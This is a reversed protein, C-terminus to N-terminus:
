RSLWWQQFHENSSSAFVAGQAHRAGGLRAVRAAVQRGYARTRHGHMRLNPGGHHHRAICEVDNGCRRRGEAIYRATLRANLRPDMLQRCTVGPVYQRATSILFQGLGCAHGWRTRPGVARPNFGSEQHVIAQMLIPDEGEALAAQVVIQRVAERSQRVFRQPADPMGGLLWVPRDNDYAGRYSADPLRAYGASATILTAAILAYGVRRATFIPDSSRM